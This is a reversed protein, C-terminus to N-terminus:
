EQEQEQAARFARTAEATSAMQNNDVGASILDDYQDELEDLEEEEEKQFDHRHRHDRIDDDPRGM